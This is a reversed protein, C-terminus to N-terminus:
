NDSYFLNCSIFLVTRFSGSDPTSMKMALWPLEWSLMATGTWINRRYFYILENLTKTKLKKFSSKSLFAYRYWSRAGATEPFLLVLFHQGGGALYERKQPLDWCGAPHWGTEFDPQNSDWDLCAKVFYFFLKLTIWLAYIFNLFAYRLTKKSLM